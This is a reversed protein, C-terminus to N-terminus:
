RRKDLLIALWLGAIIGAFMSIFIVSGLYFVFSLATTANVLSTLDALLCGIEIVMLVPYVWM